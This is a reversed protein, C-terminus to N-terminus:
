VTYEQCIVTRSTRTNVTYSHIFSIVKTMTANRVEMEKIQFPSSLFPLCCWEGIIVDFGPGTQLVEIALIVVFIGVRFRLNRPM